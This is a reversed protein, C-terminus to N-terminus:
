RGAVPPATVDTRNWTILILVTYQNYYARGVLKPSSGLFEGTRNDYVDLHLRAYGSQSQQKYLTLEPLSFPILVSQVPPMGVFVTGQMTGFSEAMVRVLYPSETDRASVRYGRRGLEAAVIDRVYFIDRSPRDIAGRDANTMHLRSRDSELGTADVDVNVGEPLHVKLNVLAQEVAQTLLVQEVATRPTRSIEQELACGMLLATVILSLVFSANMFDSWANM